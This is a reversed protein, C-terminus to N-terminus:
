FEFFIGNKQGLIGLSAFFHLALTQLAALIEVTTSKYHMQTIDGKTQLAALIEVTTSKM